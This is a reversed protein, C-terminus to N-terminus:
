SSRIRTTISVMQSFIWSYIGALMPDSPSKEQCNKIHMLAAAGNTHAVWSTIREMQESTVLEYIGLVCMAVLVEPTSTKTASTDNMTSALKKLTKGYQEAGNLAAEPSGYRGAFNAFAAASLANHLVSTPPASKLLDPLFGFLLGARQPSEAPVCFDFFFRNYAQSTRFPALAMQQPLIPAQQM